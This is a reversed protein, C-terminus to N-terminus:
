DLYIALWHKDTQPEIYWLENGIRAMSIAHYKNPKALKGYWKEYEIPHLVEISLYMGIAMARDRLQLAYDECQEDFILKGEGNVTLIVRKDTDDNILFEELQELSDWDKLMVPVEVPVKVEREITILKEVYSNIHKTQTVVKPKTYHLGFDIGVIWVVCLILIFAVPFIVKSNIKM